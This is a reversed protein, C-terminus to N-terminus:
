LVKIKYINGAQNLLEPFKERCLLNESYLGPFVSNETIVEQGAQLVADTTCDPPVATGHCNRFHKGTVKKRLNKEKRLM